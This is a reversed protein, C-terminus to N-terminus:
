CLRNRARMALWSPYLRSVPRILILIIISIIYPKVYPPPQLWLSRPSQKRAVCVIKGSTGGISVQRLIRLPNYETSDLSFPSPPPHSSILLRPLPSYGDFTLCVLLLLLLLLLTVLAFLSQLLISPYLLSSFVLLFHLLLLLLSSSSSVVSQHVPPTHTM